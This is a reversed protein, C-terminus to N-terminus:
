EGLKASVGHRGLVRRLREFILQDVFGGGNYRVDFIMGQKRIQPFYQKVFENLGTAGMDPLYVYGVKGGRAADVKKRNSEIMDQEHLRVRGRDAEGARQARGADVAQVNVTLTVTREGHEGPVRLPDAASALDRGNIALLYDGDKVNVGPETLPSRLQANWNEGPYIKKIRYM